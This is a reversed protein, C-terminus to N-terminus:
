EKRPLKHRTGDPEQISISSLQSELNERISARYQARLIEREEQEQPTLGEQSKAKRSLQNIRDIKEQEIM